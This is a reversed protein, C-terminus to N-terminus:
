TFLRRTPPSRSRSTRACAMAPWNNRSLFPWRWFWRTLNRTGQRVGPVPGPILNLTGRPDLVVCFFPQFVRRTSLFPSSRYLRLDPRAIGAATASSQELVKPLLKKTGPTFSLPFYNVAASRDPLM